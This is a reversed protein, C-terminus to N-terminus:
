RLYSVARHTLSRHSTNVSTADKFDTIITKIIVPLRYRAYEITSKNLM